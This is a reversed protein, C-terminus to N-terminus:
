RSVKGKVSRLRKSPSPNKRWARTEVWVLDVIQINAAFPKRTVVYRISKNM